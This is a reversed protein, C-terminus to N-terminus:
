HGPLFPHCMPLSGAIAARGRVCRKAEIATQTEEVPMGPQLTRVGMGEPQRRIALLLGRGLKARWVGCELM